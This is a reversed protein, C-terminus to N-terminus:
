KIEILRSNVTHNVTNDIDKIDSCEDLNVDLVHVVMSLSIGSNNFKDKIPQEINKINAYWENRNDIYTDARVLFEKNTDKLKEELTGIDLNAIDFDTEINTVEVFFPIDDKFVEKLRSNITDKMPKIYSASVYEDSYDILGNEFNVSLSARFEYENKYNIEIDNRVKFALSTKILSLDEKDINYKDEIYTYILTASNISDESYENGIGIKKSIGEIYERTNDFREQGVREIEKAIAKNYIDTNKNVMTTVISYQTEEEKDTNEYHICGTVILATIITLLSLTFKNHKNQRHKYLM